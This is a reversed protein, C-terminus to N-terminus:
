PIVAIIKGDKIKFSIFAKYAVISKDRLVGAQWKDLTTIFAYLNNVLEKSFHTAKYNEDTQLVQVRRLMKGDCDIRFRYTIYGSGTYNIKNKLLFTKARMMIDFSSEPYKGNVQYYFVNWERCGNPINNVTDMYEGDALNYNQSFCGFALLHFLLALLFKARMLLLIFFYDWWFDWRSM